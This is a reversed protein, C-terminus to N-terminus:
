SARLQRFEFFDAFRADEAALLRAYYAIYNNNIKYDHTKITVKLEWRLRELLARAGYHRIGSAYAELAFRTFLKFVVPNEAHFREFSERVTMTM